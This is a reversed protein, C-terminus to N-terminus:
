SRNIGIRAVYTTVSEALTRSNRTTWTVTLTVKKIDPGLGLTAVTLSGTAGLFKTPDWSTFTRPGGLALFSDDYAMGRVVEQEERLANLAYLRGRNEDAILFGHSLIYGMSTFAITAIAVAILAELLTYGKSSKLLKM